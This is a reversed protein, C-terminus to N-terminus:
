EQPARLDDVQTYDDFNIDPVTVEDGYKFSMNCVLSPANEGTFVFEISASLPKLESSVKLTIVADVLASSDIMGGFADAMEKFEDLASGSLGTFTAVWNGDTDKTCTVTQCNGEKINFDDDVSDDQSEKYDIYDEQSISAWNRYQTLNDESVTEYMKGDRYGSAQTNSSYTFGMDMIMETGVHHIYNSTGIGREIEALTVTADVEFDYYFFHAILEMERRINEDKQEITLIHFAKEKETMEEFTKEKQPEKPTNDNDTSDDDDTCAFVFPLVLILAM